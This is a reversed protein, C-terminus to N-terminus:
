DMMGRGVYSYYLIMEKCDTSIGLQGPQVYMQDNQPEIFNLDEWRTLDNGAITFNQGHNAYTGNNLMDVSW